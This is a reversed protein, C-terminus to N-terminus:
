QYMDIMARGSWITIKTKPTVKTWHGVYTRQTHGPGRVTTNWLAESQNTCTGKMCLELYSRPEVDSLLIDELLAIYAIALRLTDIKSLRKEYPFTPVHRRLDEFASNISLMRKRERVNAAQRQVAPPELCPARLCSGPPIASSQGGSAGEFTEIEETRPSYMDMDNRSISSVALSLRCYGSCWNRALLAPLV